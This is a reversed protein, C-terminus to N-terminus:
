NWNTKKKNIKKSFITKFNITVFIFKALRRIAYSEHWTSYRMKFANLSEYFEFKSFEYEQTWIKKTQALMKVRHM